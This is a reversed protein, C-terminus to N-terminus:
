SKLNKVKEELAKIKLKEKKARNDANQKAGLIVGNVVRIVRWLRVIIIM